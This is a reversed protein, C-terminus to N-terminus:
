YSDSAEGSAPAADGRGTNPVLPPEGESLNGKIHITITRETKEKPGIFITEETFKSADHRPTVTEHMEYTLITFPEDMANPTQVPTPTIAGAHPQLRRYVYVPEAMVWAIGEKDGMGVGADAETTPLEIYDGGGRIMPYLKGSYRKADHLLAFRFSRGDFAMRTLTDSKGSTGDTAEFELWVTLNTRDHATFEYVNM